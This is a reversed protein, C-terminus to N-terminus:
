LEQVLEMSRSKFDLLLMVQKVLALFRFLMLQLAQSLAQTPKLTVMLHVLLVLL